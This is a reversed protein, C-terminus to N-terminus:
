MMLQQTAKNGTLWWHLKYRRPSNVLVLIVVAESLKSTSTNSGPYEVFGTDMMADRPRYAGDCRGGDGRRTSQVRTDPYPLLRTSIAPPFEPYSFLLSVGGPVPRALCTSRTADEGCRVFHLKTTRACCLLKGSATYPTPRFGPYLHQKKSREWRKQDHSEAFWWATFDIWLQGIGPDAAAATRWSWGFLLM